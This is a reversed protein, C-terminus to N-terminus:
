YPGLLPGLPPVLHPTLHPGYQSGKNSPNHSTHVLLDWTVHAVGMYATVGHLLLDDPSSWFPYGNHPWLPTPIPDWIPDM